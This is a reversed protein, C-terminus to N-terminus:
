QFLEPYHNEDCFQSTTISLIKYTFYILFYCNVQAIDECEILLYDGRMLFLDTPLLELNGNSNSSEFVLEALKRGFQRVRIVHIRWWISRDDSPFKMLAYLLRPNDM